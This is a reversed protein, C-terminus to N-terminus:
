FADVHPGNTATTVNAGQRRCVAPPRPRASHGGTATRGDPRESRRFVQLDVAATVSLKGPLTCLRQERAAPELHHAAPGMGVVADAQRATLHLTWAIRRVDELHFAQKLQRHLQERKGPHIRMSHVMALERLHGMAPTVIILNGGPKTVRSFERPNRPAFVNTVLDVSADRLPVGHWVDGAVVAIRPHARAARRLAARSADFAIGHADPLADLVAALHHGTGAGVDLVMPAGDRTVDLATRVLAATLPAFSQADLVAARAGVMTADDGAVRRRRPPM